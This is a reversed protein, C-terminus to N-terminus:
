RAGSASNDRDPNYRILDDREDYPRVSRYWANWATYEQEPKFEGDTLGIGRLKRSLIRLSVSAEIAVQPDSDRLADILIRCSRLDNSRGLAWMATQRVGPRPDVALNKLREKQRILDEPRDQLVKDIINAQLSAIKESNPNELESL